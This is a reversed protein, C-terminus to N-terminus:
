IPIGTLLPYGIDGRSLIAEWPKGIVVRSEVMEAKVTLWRRLHLEDQGLSGRIM